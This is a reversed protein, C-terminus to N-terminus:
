SAARGTQGPRGAPRTSGGGPAAAWGRVGKERDADSCCRSVAQYWEQLITMDEITLLTHPTVNGAVDPQLKSM